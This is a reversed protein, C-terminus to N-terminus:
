WAIERLYADRMVLRNEDSHIYPEGADYCLGSLLYEGASMGGSNEEACYWRFTFGEPRLLNFYIKGLMNLGAWVMHQGFNSDSKCYSICSDKKTIMGIRKLNGQRLLPIAADIVEQMRSIQGSLVELLLECDHKEGIAGDQPIDEDVGLPLLDIKGEKQNIKEMLTRIDQEEQCLTYVKCDHLSLYKKTEEMCSNGNDMCLVIKCM